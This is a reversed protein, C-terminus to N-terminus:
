GFIRVATWVIGQASDMTSELVSAPIYQKYNNEEMVQHLVTLNFGFKLQGALCDAVHVFAAVERFEEPTQDPHHHHEAIARCAAPFKWKEALAAGLMQHDVGVIDQELVCFPTPDERAIECVKRLQDPHVQLTALLGMDHVMGALFVEEALTKRCLRAMERGIVGVAICHTWLDKATFGECLKVGRFLKGVSAALSLKQITDFGLLVIAREVSNVKTSRSYFASNVTKLIRTVLSPDHSIVRYLDNPTSKPDNVTELIRSTVEPLTGITDLKDVIQTAREHMELEYEIGSDLAM